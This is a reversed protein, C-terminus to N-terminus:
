VEKLLKRVYNMLDKRMYQPPAHQLRIVEPLRRVYGPLSYQFRYHKACLCQKRILPNSHKFLQQETMRYLQQNHTIVRNMLEIVAEPEPRALDKELFYPRHLAMMYDLIELDSTIQQLAEETVQYDARQKIYYPLSTNLFRIMKDPSPKEEQEPDNETHHYYMVAQLFERYSSRIDGIAQFFKVHAM